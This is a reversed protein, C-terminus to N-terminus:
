LEGSSAKWLEPVQSAKLKRVMARGKKQGASQVKKGPFPCKLNAYEGENGDGLQETQFLMMECYIDNRGALNEGKCTAHPQEPALVSCKPDAAVLAGRARQLAGRWAESSATSGAAKLIPVITEDCGAVRESIECAGYPEPCCALAPSERTMPDLLGKPREGGCSIEILDSLVGVAKWYPCAERDARSAVEGASASWLSALLAIGRM